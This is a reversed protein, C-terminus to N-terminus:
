PIYVRAHTPPTLNNGPLERLVGCEVTAEVLGVPGAIGLSARVEARFCYKM